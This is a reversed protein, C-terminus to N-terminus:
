EGGSWQYGCKPCKHETEINEDMESFDEPASKEEGPVIGHEEAMAALMDVVPQSSTHIERLLADLKGADATAMAGIPDYTALLLDAEAETLDLVLVPLPSDGSVEARLHGDILMLSGDDCVRALEAGAFGIEALVGRMADAQGTPHTRWNRPNPRLDCAPVRRLEIVRDRIEM